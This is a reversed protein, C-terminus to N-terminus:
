KKPEIVDTFYPYDGFVVIPVYCKSGEKSGKYWMLTRIYAGEYKVIFKDISLPPKLNGGTNSYYNYIADNLCYFWDNATNRHICKAFSDAFTQQYGKDTVQFAIYIRNAVSGEPTTIPRGAHMAWAMTPNIAAKIGLNKNIGVGALECGVGMIVSTTQKVNNRIQTDVALRLDGATLTWNNQIGQTQMMAYGSHSLDLVPTGSNITTYNVKMFGRQSNAPNPLNPDIIGHSMWFLNTWKQTLSHPYAGISQNKFQDTDPMMSMGFMWGPVKLTAAKHKLGTTDVFMAPNSNAYIYIPSNYLPDKSLFRMLLEGYWRARMNHLKVKEVYRIGHTGIFNFSQLMKASKNGSSDSRPLPNGYADTSISDIPNGYADTILRVSGLHDTHYFITNTKNGAEISNSHIYSSLMRNQIIHNATTEWEGNRNKVLEHSAYRNNQIFKRETGESEQRVLMGDSDYTFEIIESDPLTVKKLRDFCDWEYTTTEGTANNVTQTLNGNDDYILTETSSDPHTIGTLENMENYTFETVHKGDYIVRHINGNKSSNDDFTYEINYIIKGTMTIGSASEDAATDPTRRTEALLRNLSSPTPPNNYRIITGGASVAIIDNSSIGRVSRLDRGAAGTSLNWNSGDYHIVPANKGVVAYKNLPYVSKGWVGLFDWSVGSEVPTRVNSVLKLITGNDGVVRLNGNVNKWFCRLNETTGSQM